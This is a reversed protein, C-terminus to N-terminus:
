RLLTEKRSDSLEVFKKNHLKVAMDNLWGVGNFIFDKEEGDTDPADLMNRLFRLAAIDRAGPSQNDAPFLHEQVSALSLWPDQLNQYLSNDAQGSMKETAIGSVPWSASAAAILQLFDRRTIHKLHTM